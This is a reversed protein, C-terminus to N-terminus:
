TRAFALLEAYSDADAAKLAHVYRQRVEGQSTLDRGGWTFEAPGLAVALLDTVLRARRGYGNVFPHIAVLRHHFRLLIEDPPWSECEIWIRVDELLDRARPDDLRHVRLLWAENLIKQSSLPARRLAIRAALINAQDLENLQERTTVCTARLEREEEDTLPTAHEDM